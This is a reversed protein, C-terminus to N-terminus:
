SEIAAKALYAAEFAWGTAHNELRVDIDTNTYPALEVRETTWKGRTNIEKALREEGNIFVKLLFDGQLDSATEIVLGPRGTSPVPLRATLVAPMTQDVPHLMLVNERGFQESRFGPEMDSGCAVIKWNKDWLSVEHQSIAAASADSQRVWQEYTEPAQPAQVPFTYTDGDITGGARKIIQETVAQCAPILSNFSYDTHSFKTEAMAPIGSTFRAELAAYGKMCGLVGVANSPNCDADQGCRTSIEMTKEFDGNGYLLGMVIYAGNLKADINFPDGPKCDIDDQWKAEIQKWAALWDNPAADYYAIVDKICKYYESDEPICALGANIVKRFDTDEFYAASYMGAVFMGGYLGDGYNMIRGFVDCLRNSERPMGPTLIGFLDAEIQFDIDDAHKNYNPHGSMPPMIGRRCNDRGARNAHWLPYQSDAFDKGAQEYTVDLGHKEISKLFTMEVYCDDQDIAGAVLDPTWARMPETIPKGNSQFEYPAGYCVGIMQGAWAGKCKDLFKEKTLTATEAQASLAVIAACIGVQISKM